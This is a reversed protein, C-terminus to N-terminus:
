WCPRGWEPRGQQMQLSLNNTEDQVFSRVDLTDDRIFIQVGWIDTDDQVSRSPAGHVGTDMPYASHLIRKQMECVDM